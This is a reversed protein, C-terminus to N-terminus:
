RLEAVLQRWAQVHPNVDPQHHEIHCRRCWVHCNDEDFCAAERDDEHVDALEVAHHVEVNSTVEQCVECRSGREDILRRRFRRRSLCTFGIPVPSNARHMLRVVGSATSPEENIRRPGRLTAVVANRCLGSM